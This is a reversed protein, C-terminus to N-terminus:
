KQLRVLLSATEGTATRARIDALYYGGPAMTGHASKGSWLLTNSGPNVPAAPLLAIERGSLNRIIVEVVADQTSTLQLQVMGASTPCVAAQLVLAATPATAVYAYAGLDPPLNATRPRGLVDKLCLTNWVGKGRAPSTAQLDYNFQLPAVFRPNAVLSRPGLPKKGSVLRSMRWPTNGIWIMPANLSGYYLNCNDNFMKSRMINIATFAFITNRILVTGPDPSELQLSYGGNRGLTCNWIRTGNGAAIVGFAGNYYAVSSALLVGDRWFKFGAVGNSYSQCREVRTAAAKIDFGADGHGYAVCDQISVATCNSEVFFGDTNGSLEEDSNDAARSSKVTLRSIGGSGGFGLLYGQRNDHVNCGEVLVNDGNAIRLGHYGNRIECNRITVNDAQELLIGYGAGNVVLGELIINGIPTASTIATDEYAAEIIAARARLAKITIPMSPTGLPGLNMQQTFTGDLLVLRDGGSLQRLSYAFSRFPRVQTGPNRDSGSPGVYYTSSHAALPLAMTLLVLLLPLRLSHPRPVRNMM